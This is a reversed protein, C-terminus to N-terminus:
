KTKKNKTFQQFIEEFGTKSFDQNGALQGQVLDLTKHLDAIAKRAEAIQESKTM